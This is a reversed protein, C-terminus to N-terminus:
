AQGMVKEAYHRADALRCRGASNAVASKPLLSAAMWYPLWVRECRRWYITIAIDRCAGVQQSISFHVGTLGNAAALRTAKDARAQWQALADCSLDETEIDLLDTRAKTLDRDVFKFIGTPEAAPKSESRPEPPQPKQENSGQGTPAQVYITGNNIGAIGGTISGNFVSTLAGPKLYNLCAWVSAVVGLCIAVVLSARAYGITTKHPPPATNELEEMDRTPADTSANSLPWLTEFQRANVIISDYAQLQSTRQVAAPDRGDVKGDPHIEAGGRPVLIMKWLTRDDPIMYLATSRWHTRPIPEYDMQGPKRGSAQLHGDTLADLVLSAATQMVTRDDVQSQSRFWKAWASCWVMARIAGGLGADEEHLYELPKSTPRLPAEDLDTM